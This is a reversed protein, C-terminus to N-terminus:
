YENTENIINPAQQIIYHIGHVFGSHNLTEQIDGCLEIYNSHFCALIYVQGTKQYALKFREVDITGGQRIVILSTPHQTNFM